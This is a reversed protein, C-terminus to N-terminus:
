RPKIEWVDPLPDLTIAQGAKGSAYAAKVVEMSRLGDQGTALRGKDRTKGSALAAFDDM